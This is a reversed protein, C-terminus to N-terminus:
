VEPSIDFHFQISRPDTWVAQPTTLFGWDILPNIDNPDRGAFWVGDSILQSHNSNGIEYFSGAEVVAVLNNPDEALRYAMALGATGGGVIVYDFTADGPAGFSSGLLRRARLEHESLPEAVPTASVLASLLCLSSLFSRM